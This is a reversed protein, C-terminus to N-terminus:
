RQSYYIGRERLQSVRSAASKPLDQSILGTSSLWQTQSIFRLQKCPTRNARHLKPDKRRQEEGSRHRRYHQGSGLFRFVFCLVGVCARRKPITVTRVRRSPMLTPASIRVGSCTRLGKNRNLRQQRPRTRENTQLNEGQQPSQKLSREYEVPIWRYHDGEERVYGVGPFHCM